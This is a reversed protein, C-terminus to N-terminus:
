GVMPHAYIIFLLTNKTFISMGKKQEITLYFWVSKWHVTQIITKEGNCRIPSINM